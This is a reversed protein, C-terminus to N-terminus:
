GGMLWLMSGVIPPTLIAALIVVSTASLCGDGSHENYRPRYDKPNNLSVECRPCQRANESAQRGCKWCKIFAMRPQDEYEAKGTRAEEAEEIRTKCLPCGIADEPILEGCTRCETSAKRPPEDDVEMWLHAGCHPCSSGDDSFRIGCERCMRFPTPREFCRPCVIADKSIQKEDCNSCETFAMRPRDYGPGRIHDRSLAGCHTCLEMDESVQWGCEWCERSATGCYPCEFAGQQGCNWCTIRTREVCYPCWEADKSIQRGCNWCEKLDTRPRSGGHQKITVKCFPCILAVESVWRDCKWCLETRDADTSAKYSHPDELTPGCHPCQEAYESIQRECNWCVVLYTRPPSAMVEGPGGLLLYTDCVPCWKANESVQSGCEWCEILSVDRLGEIFNPDESPPECQPCTVADESLQWGCNYCEEILGM